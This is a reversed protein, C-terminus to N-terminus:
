KLNFEPSALIVLWRERDSDAKALRKATSNSLVGDLHLDEAGRASPVSPLGDLLDSVFNFRALMTSPSIWGGNPPWGAVNPPQFLSEGMGEGYGLVLEITEKAGARVAGAASVMFELPSKVLARYSGAASFEPSTFAARMLEGLDYDSARFRGAIQQVTEEGPAPSIFQIAVKRALFKATAPHALIQEIVGDLGHRGRRNLYSVAGDYAMEPAFAGRRQEYWVDIPAKAGTKEDVVIEVQTDAPPTTWGALARAAAKVDAERYSGAGLTFLEMLERAYNENPPQAPDSADSTGLDLYTLMAPDITVERLMRGLKDVSRRRWTLNQWYMFLADVKDLSSTFHGHWFYTMREALPTQTSLIHRLWWRQLDSGELRAGRTPDGPSVLSPPEAAGAELISDITRQYGHSLGPELATPTIGFTARRLLQAVRARESGLPSPWGSRGAPDLVATWPHSVYLKVAGLGVAASAAGGLVTRRSLLAGRPASGGGGTM